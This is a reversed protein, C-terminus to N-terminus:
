GQLVLENLKTETWFVDLRFGFLVRYTISKERETLVVFTRCWLWDNHRPLLYYLKFDFVYLERKKFKFNLAWWIKKLSSKIIEKDRLSVWPVPTSMKITISDEGLFFFISRFIKPWSISRLIGRYTNM